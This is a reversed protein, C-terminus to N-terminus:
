ARGRSRMNLVVAGFIGVLTMALGAFVSTPRYRMEIRHKGKDVMVGRKPVGM